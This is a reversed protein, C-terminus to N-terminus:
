VVVNVLRDPVVIVKRPTKGDLFRRANDAALALRELEDEPTGKAVELRDRVKGNVQVVLTITEERCLDEDHEP